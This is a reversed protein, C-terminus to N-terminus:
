KKVIGLDVLMKALLEYEADLHKRTQASNRFDQAWANAEL